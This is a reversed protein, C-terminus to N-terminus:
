DDKIHHLSSIHDIFQPQWDRIEASAPCVVQDGPSDLCPQHPSPVAPRRGASRPKRTPRAQSRYRLVQDALEDGQEVRCLTM